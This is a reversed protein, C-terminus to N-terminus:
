KMAEALSAAGTDLLAFEMLLATPRTMGADFCVARPLMERPCFEDLRTWLKLSLSDELLKTQSLGRLTYTVYYRDDRRDARLVLTTNPAVVMPVGIDMWVRKRADRQIPQGANLIMYFIM